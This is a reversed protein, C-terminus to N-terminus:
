RAGMKSATYFMKSQDFCFISCVVHSFYYNTNRIITLLMNCRAHLRVMRGCSLKTKQLGNLGSMHQRYLETCVTFTVLSYDAKGAMLLM